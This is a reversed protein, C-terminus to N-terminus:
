VSLSHSSARKQNNLTARSQLQLAPFRNSINSWSLLIRENRGNVILYVGNKTEKMLSRMIHNIKFIKKTNVRCHHLTSSRATRLLFLLFQPNRKSEGGSKRGHMEASGSGGFRGMASSVYPFNEFDIM